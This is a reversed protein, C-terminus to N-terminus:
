FAPCVPCAKLGDCRWPCPFFQSLDSVRWVGQEADYEYILWHSEGPKEYSALPKRSFSLSQFVWGEPPVPLGHVNGTKSYIEQGHANLEIGAERRRVDDAHEIMDEPTMGLNHPYPPEDEPEPARDAMLYGEARMDLITDLHKCHSARQFGHCSCKPGGSTAALDVVYSSADPKSLRVSVPEGARSHVTKLRYTTPIGRRDRIKVSSIGDYEYDPSMPVIRLTPRATQTALM